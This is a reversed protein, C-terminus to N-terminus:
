MTEFVTRFARIQPETLVPHDIEFVIVLDGSEQNNDPNLMGKGKIRYPHNNHLVGLTQTEIVFAEDFLPVNIKKGIVAEEWSVRHKFILDNDQRNFVTHSAIQVIIYLDGPDEGDKQPQQGLGEFRIRHGSRVGRPIVLNCQNTFTYEFKGRCTSCSPQSMKKCGLGHCQPCPMQQQMMFVGNQVVQTFTGTGRCHLCQSQCSTCTKQININLNKTLGAYAEQLTITIDFTQDSRRVRRPPNFQMGGAAGGFMNMFIDNMNMHHMGGGGPAGETQQKIYLEHNNMQDYRARKEPDKLTEFAAQVDQFVTADGGKDPHTKLAKTRYAKKIDEPSASQPIEFLDYYYLGM